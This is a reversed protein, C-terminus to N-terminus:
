DDRWRGYIKHANTDASTYYVRFFIQGLGRTSVEKIGYSTWTDIVRFETTAAATTASCVHGCLEVKLTGMAANNISLTPTATNVLDVILAQRNSVTVRPGADMVYGTNTASMTLTAVFSSDTTDSVITGTQARAVPVFALVLALIFLTLLGSARSFKPFM